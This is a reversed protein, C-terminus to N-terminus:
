SVLVRHGNFLEGNEEKKWSRAVAWGSETEIIDSSGWTLPIVHTKDKPFQHMESVNNEPNIWTTAYM